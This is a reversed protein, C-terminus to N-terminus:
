MLPLATAAATAAALLLPAPEAEPPTAVDLPANFAAPELPLLVLALGDPPRIFAGLEPPQDSCILLEAMNWEDAYLEADAPALIPKEDGALPEVDAPAQEVADGVLAAPIIAALSNLLM